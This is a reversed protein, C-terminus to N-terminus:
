GAVLTVNAKNINTGAGTLKVGPPSGIELEPGIWYGGPGFITDGITGGSGMTAPITVKFTFKRSKGPALSAIVRKENEWPGVSLGPRGGVVKSVGVEVLIRTAAGPGRNTIKFTIPFPVGLKETAPLGVIAAHITTTPAAALVGSALVLLAGVSVVAVVCRRM